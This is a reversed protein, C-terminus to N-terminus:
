VGCAILDRPGVVEFTIVDENYPTLVLLGPKRKTNFLFILM